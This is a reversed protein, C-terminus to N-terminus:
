YWGHGYEGLKKNKPNLSLMRQGPISGSIKSEFIGSVARRGVHSFSEYENGVKPEPIPTGKIATWEPSTYPSSGDGLDSWRTVVIAHKFPSVLDNRDEVMRIEVLYETPCDPCRRAPRCWDCGTVIFNPHAAERNIKPARKLQNLYSDPPAPVHSMACKCMDMLEGDQWHACVSFYPMFDQLEYLVHREVTKTLTKAPPVFCQSVARVLLRGDHELYRTRFDWGSEAHQWRRSLSEPDIGHARSHSNRLALQVWGYPLERGHTLRLRPLTTNRAAPCVFLPNKVYDAKLSEKGPRTRLHYRACPFCLLHRPLQGDLSRLFTIKHHKNQPEDLSKLPASGLKQRLTQSSLALCVADAPNLFSVIRKWLEDPISEVLREHRTSALRFEETHGQSDFYPDKLRDKQITQDLLSDFSDHHALRHMMDTYDHHDVLTSAESFASHEREGLENVDNHCHAIDESQRANYRNKRAHEERQRQRREAAKANNSDIAAQTFKKDSRLKKSVRLVVKAPWSNLDPTTWDM